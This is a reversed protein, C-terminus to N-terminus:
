NQEKRVFLIGLTGPGCHSSIVCGADTQYITKFKGSQQLLAAAYTRIEPDVGADTLFVHSDEVETEALREEIYRGIVMKLKGRYKKEMGLKGDRVSLCPKIGLLNAGLAATGSCRGGKHMYALQDLVFSADCRKSFDSLADHIEAAAAGANKLRIAELLVLGEGSSLSGTDVVYVNEFDAAAHCANQYASSFHAGLSLYIVADGKKLLEAFFDTFDAPSIASTRPLSGTEEAMKYLADRTITVGDTFDKDGFTIHFPLVHIDNEKIVAYPVDCASDTALIINHM